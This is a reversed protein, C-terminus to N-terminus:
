EGYVDSAVGQMGATGGVKGSSTPRVIADLSKTMPGRVGELNTNV